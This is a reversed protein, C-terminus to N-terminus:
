AHPLMPEEASQSRRRTGHPGREQGREWTGEQAAAWTSFGSPLAAVELTPSLLHFSTRLVARGPRETSCVCPAASM